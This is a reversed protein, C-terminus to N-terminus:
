VAFIEELQISGSLMTEPFGLTDGGYNFTPLPSRKM